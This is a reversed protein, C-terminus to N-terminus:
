FLSETMDNPLSPTPAAVLRGGSSAHRTGYYSFEVAKLKFGGRFVELTIITQLGSWHVSYTM